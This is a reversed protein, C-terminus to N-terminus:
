KKTKSIRQELPPRRNYHCSTTGNPNKRKKCKEKRKKAFIYPGCFIQLIIDPTTPSLPLSRGGHGVATPPARYEVFNYIEDFVVIKM